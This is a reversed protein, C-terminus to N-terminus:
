EASQSLAPGAFLRVLLLFAVAATAGAYMGRTWPESKDSGALFGHITTLAFALLSFYHVGRWVRYSIRRRYWSTVLVLTMLYLAFVGYRVATARYPEAFPFLINAISFPLFPDLLLSVLHTLILFGTLTAAVAHLEDVLWSMRESAQRAISRLMGLIVTITLLVYASTASARTIYWM